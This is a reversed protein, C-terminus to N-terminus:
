RRRGGSTMATSPTAVKSSAIAPSLLRAVTEVMEETVAGAPLM